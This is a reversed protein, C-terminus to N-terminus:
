GNKWFIRIIGSKKGSSQVKRIAYFKRSWWKLGSVFNETSDLYCGGFYIKSRRLMSPLIDHKKEPRITPEWEWHVNSPKQKKTTQQKKKIHGMLSVSTDTVLVWSWHKQLMMKFYMSYLFWNYPFWLDFPSVYCSISHFTGVLSCPFLRLCFYSPLSSVSTLHCCSLGIMNASTRKM